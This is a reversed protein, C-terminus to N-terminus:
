IIDSSIMHLFNCIGDFTGGPSRFRKVARRNAKSTREPKMELRSALISSALIFRASM